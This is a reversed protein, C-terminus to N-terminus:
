PGAKWPGEVLAHLHRFVVEEQRRYDDFTYGPRADSARFEGAPAQRHWGRLAPLGGAYRSWGYLFAIAALALTVVLNVM